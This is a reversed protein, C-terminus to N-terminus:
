NMDGTEGTTLVTSDALNVKLDFYDYYGTWNKFKWALTCFTEIKRM